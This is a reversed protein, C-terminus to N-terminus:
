LLATEKCLVEKGMHYDKCSILSPYINICYLEAPRGGARHCQKLRAVEKM